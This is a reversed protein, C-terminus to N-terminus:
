RYEEAYAAIRMYKLFNNKQIKDLEGSYSHVLNMFEERDIFNNEDVDATHILWRLKQRSIGQRAELMVSDQFDLTDMWNLFAEKDIRGDAVGDKPDLRDFVDQWEDTSNDDQDENDTDINSFTKM